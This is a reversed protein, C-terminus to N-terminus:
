PGPFLEKFRAAVTADGSVSLLVDDHSMRGLAFLALHDAPATITCTAMDEAGAAQWSGSAYRVAAVSDTPTRLEVSTGEDAATGALPMWLPLLTLVVDAVEGDLTPSEDLAARLDYLHVGYELVLVPVAISAPMPAFPLPVTPDPDLDLADLASELNRRSQELVQPLDNFDAHVEIWSPTEAIRARARHFAEAQMWAVAAVHRTLEAVDWGTLSTPTKWEGDLAAVRREFERLQGVTLDIM